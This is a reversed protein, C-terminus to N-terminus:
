EEPQPWHPPMAHGAREMSTATQAHANFAGEVLGLYVMSVAYRYKCSRVPGPLRSHRATRPLDAAYMTLMACSIRLMRMVTLVVTVKGRKRDLRTSAATRAYATFAGVMATLCFDRSYTWNNKHLHPHLTAEKRGATRELFTRKLTTNARRGTWVPTLGENIDKLTWFNTNDRVKTPKAQLPLKQRFLWICNESSQTKGTSVPLPIRRQELVGPWNKWRLAANALWWSTLRTNVLTTTAALRQLYSDSKTTKNPM